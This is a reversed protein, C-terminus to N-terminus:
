SEQKSNLCRLVEEAAQEVSLRDADILCHAQEYFPMRKVLLEKIKELPNEVNLLPRHAFRRTRKLIMEPTSTLCIVTGSSKFMRINEPDVFAGGGCAVVLGKKKSLEGVIEKEIGRFYPEGKNKFIEPISIKEREEILDDMDVFVRGLRKALLRATETKGTGMFGVLYINKM